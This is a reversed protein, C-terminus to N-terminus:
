SCNEKPQYEFFFKQLDEAYHWKKFEPGVYERAVEEWLSLNGPNLTAAILAQHLPKRERVVLVFYALQAREDAHMDIFFRNLARKVPLEFLSQVIGGEDRFTHNKSLDSPTTAGQGSRDL